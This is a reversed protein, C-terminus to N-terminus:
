LDKWREIRVRITDTGNLKFLQNDPIRGTRTTAETEWSGRTIKYFNYRKSFDSITLTYRGDAGKKFRYQEDKAQWENFDGTLYLNENIPTNEPTGTLLLVLQRQDTEDFWRQVQIHITDDAVGRKIVKNSLKEGNYSSEEREWSGRTLKFEHQDYDNLRLLIYKKGNPLNRFQYNEDKDNWGNFDGALFVTNNKGFEPLKDIIIFVKKRKDYDIFQANIKTPPTIFRQLNKLDNGSVVGKTNEITVSKVNNTQPKQYLGDAWAEIEIYVTDKKDFPITRNEIDDFNKKTEVTEWGGRTIKYIFEDKGLYTVNIFRKGNPLVSFKYRSDLPNWNNISGALFIDSKGKTNQPMSEIVITKTYIKELPMDAWSNVNLFVTDKQGFLIERQLQESGNEDLEATGWTGRTIKFVLRDSNRPVTLALKGSGLKKFLFRENNCQWGNINGGLYIKSYLPTNSPLKDIILTVRGCNEPELDQWGVITDVRLDGDSYKLKRNVREGGCADTEATTWDGRTFKYYVNGFGIPLDVYYEKTEDDYTMLYKSDGPNWNNFSGAVFIQAGKPTNKPVKDLSLTVRKCSSVVLLCIIAIYSLHVRM